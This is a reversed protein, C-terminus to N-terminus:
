LGGLLIDHVDQLESASLRRRWIVSIPVDLEVGDGGDLGDALAGIAHDDSAVLTTGTSSAVKTSPTQNQL